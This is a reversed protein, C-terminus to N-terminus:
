NSLIWNAIDTFAASYFPTQPILGMLMAGLEQGHQNFSTADTPMFAHNLGAYYLMTANPMNGFIAQMLPWDTASTVQFDSGAHQVLIPVTVLAADRGLPHQAADWLFYTTLGFAEAPSPTTLAEERTLYPLSPLFEKLGSLVPAFLAYQENFAVMIPDDESLLPMTDRRFSEFDASIQYAFVEGLGRPTGAMLILGAFDGRDALHIRLAMTVGQSHGLLYVRGSDVYPHNRLIDAALLADAIAEEYMTFYQGYHAMLAEGHAYTRKDHRISAIGYDALHRAIYGHLGFAGEMNSPGSGHVHVIAPVPNTVSASAPLTIVGDLPWMTGEGVIIMANTETNNTTEIDDLVLRINATRTSSNWQIIHGLNEMTSRLPLMYAEHLTVDAGVLEAIFWHPVFTIGDVLTPNDNGFNIDEGNLTVRIEWEAAQLVYPISAGFALVAIMAIALFRKNTKM